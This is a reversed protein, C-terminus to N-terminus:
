GKLNPNLSDYDIKLDALDKTGKIFNVIAKGERL